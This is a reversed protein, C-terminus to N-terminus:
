SLVPIANSFGLRQLQNNVSHKDLDLLPGVQVGYLIKDNVSIAKIRANQHTTEAIKVKIQEATAMQQFAGVQLYFYKKPLNAPEKVNIAEVRVQATGKEAYGLKKAAAYSLDMIRDNAFPGRDNVKVIVQRGNELNTVRAYTPLPLNPSAATMALMDYPEHTSTLKGHFKSGYWSATGTKDYGKASDLVYYRKGVAVYSPPNGYISKPEFKPVADKLQSVDVPFPPPGDRLSTSVVPAQKGPMTSCATICALVILSYAILRTYKTITNM